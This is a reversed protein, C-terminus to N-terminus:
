LYHMRRGPQLICVTCFRKKMGTFLIIPFRQNLSATLHYMPKRTQHLRISPSTAASRGGSHPLILGSFVHALHAVSYILTEMADEAVAQLVDVPPDKIGSFAFTTRLVHPLGRQM